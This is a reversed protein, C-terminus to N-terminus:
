RTGFKNMENILMNPVQKIASNLQELTVNDLNGEVTVSIPAEIGSVGTKVVDHSNGITYNVAKNLPVLNDTLAKFQVMQESSLIGEKRKVLAIGDEGTVRQLDFTGGEKFSAQKVLKKLTNLAYGVRDVGYLKTDYKGYKTLPALVNLLATYGNVNLGHGMSNLYKQLSDANLSGAFEPTNFISKVNRILENNTTNRKTSVEKTSTTVSTSNSSNGSWKAGALEVQQKALKEYWDYQDKLKDNVDSIADKIGSMANTVSNEYSLLPTTNNWVTLLDQQIAYGVATAKEQVTSLINVSKSICLDVADGFVRDTDKLYEEIRQRYLDLSKDLAEEQTEISHSYQDEELQEKADTLEQELKLKKAVDARDTSLSLAAIQKELMVINDKQKTISKEYDHTKKEWDLLEKQKDVLKQLADIKANYGKEVLSIVAEKESKAAEICDQYRSVLDDKREILTQNNPDRALEANIKEVEEKYLKAEETYFNYNQAKLGMSAIGEDTLGFDGTLEAEMFLDSLFSTEEEIAKLRSILDDFKDWNLQRIANNWEVTNKTCEEIQDSIGYLEALDEFYEVDDTTYYGDAINQNIREQVAKREKELQLQKDVNLGIMTKYMETGAAYGRAEITAIKSNVNSQKADTVTNYKEFQEKVKNIATEALSKLNTVLDEVAIAADKEAAINSNLAGNYKGAAKIAEESTLRTVDIEESLKVQTKIYSKEADTAKLAGSTIEEKAENFTKSTEKYAKQYESEQNRYSSAMDSILSGAKELSNTNGIRKEAISLADNLKEVSKTCDDIPLNGLSEGLSLMNQRYEELGDEYQTKSMEYAKRNGIVESAGKLINKGADSAASIGYKALWEEVDGLETQDSSLLTALKSRDTANKINSTVYKSQKFDSLNKKFESNTESKTNKYTKFKDREKNIQKNILSNKNASTTAMEIESSLHNIVSSLKEVKYTCEDLPINSYAMAIENLSDLYDSSGQLMNDNAEKSAQLANNWRSAIKVAEETNLKSLDIANNSNIAKTILKKEAKTTGKFANKKKISSKISNKNTTATDNATIYANLTKTANTREKELLTRKNAGKGTRELEASLLNFKKSLEEVKSNCKDLPINYLAENLSNIGSIYDQFGQNYQTKANKNANLSANYKQAWQLAKGKLKGTSIEEEKNIKGKLLNRYKKTLYSAKGIQTKAKKKSTNLKTKTKTVENEQTQIISDRANIQSQILSKNSKYNGSLTNYQEINSLKAELISLKNNYKDIKKEAAEVPINAWQEALDAMTNRLSENAEVCSQAKDYWSQYNQIAKKLNENKITKIDFTGGQISKIIRSSIKQTKKKKKSGTTYSKSKNAQTMYKDYAINNAKYEVSVKNYATKIQTQKGKQSIYEAIKDITREAVTKLKNLRREIFDFTEPTPKSKSGSSGKKKNPNNGVPLKLPANGSTKVSTGKVVTAQMSKPSDADLFNPIGDGDIDKKTPKYKSNTKKNKSNGKDDVSLASQYNQLVNFSFTTNNFTNFLDNLNNYAEVSSNSLSNLGTTGTNAGDSIGVKLYQNNFGFLPNLKNFAKNSGNALNNLGTVGATDNNNIGIQLYQNNYGFLPNLKNIVNDSSDSLINLNEVASETDINVKQDKEISKVDKTKNSDSMKNTSEKKDENVKKTKVEFDSVIEGFKDVYKGFEKDDKESINISGVNGNAHAFGRISSTSKAKGRSNTKGKSLLEETQKHNFVIDDKEINAFEAGDAGVTRWTGTKPNVILEEGLEATLAVHSGNVSGFTGSAHATGSTWAGVGGSTSGKNSGSNSGGSDSSLGAIYGAANATREWANAVSESNNAINAVTSDAGTLKGNTLDLKANVEDVEQSTTKDTGEDSQEILKDTNIGETELKQKVAEYTQRLEKLNEVDDKTDYGVEKKKSIAAELDDMKQKVDVLETGMSELSNTDEEVNSFDLEVGYAKLKDFLAEAVTETIGLQKRMDELNHIDFTFTGNKNINAMASGDDANKLKAVDKIFNNVGVSSGTLYRKVDKLESKFNDLNFDKGFYAEIQTKWEETGFLGGKYLEKLRTIGEVMTDYEFGVDQSNSAANQWATFASTTHVLQDRLLKYENVQTKIKENEEQLTSLEKKGADTLNDKQDKLQKIKEANIQYQQSRMAEAVRIEAIRHEANAKIMERAKQANLTIGYSTTELCKEYDQSSEILANYTEQTIYGTRNQESLASQLTNVDTTTQEVTKKFGDLDSITNAVDILNDLKASKALILAKKLDELTLTTKDSENKIMDLQQKYNESNVIDLDSKKLSVAWKQSKTMEPSFTEIYNAIISKSKNLTEELVETDIGNKKLFTQPDINLGNETLGNSIEEGYQNIIDIYDSVPMSEADIKFFNSISGQLEKNESVKSIIKNIYDEYESSDGEFKNYLEERISKVYSTLAIKTDEDINENKNFGKQLWADIYQDNEKIGNQYAKELVKEYKKITANAKSKIKEDDSIYDDAEINFDLGRREADEKIKRFDVAYTNPNYADITLKGSNSPKYTSTIAGSIYSYLLDQYHKVSGENDGIIDDIGNNPRSVSNYTNQMGSEVNELVKDYHENTSDELAKNLLDVNDRCKLIADGTSTYGNVLTPFREAIENSIENYEKFDSTSLSINQGFENVGKSLKEYREINDEVYSSNDELTKQSEKLEDNKAKVEDSLKARSEIGKTIQSIGLEILKIAATIAIMNGVTSLLTSGFGKLKSGVGEVGDGAKKAAAEERLTQVNSVFRNNKVGAKINDKVGQAKNKVGQFIGGSKAANNTQTSATNQDLAASNQELNVSDAAEAEGHVINAEQGAVKQENNVVQGETNGNVATTNATTEEADVVESDGHAINAAEGEEKAITNQEISGTEEDIAEKNSRFLDTVNLGGKAMFFGIIGGLATELLGVNGIVDSIAKAIDVFFILLGSDVSNQWMTQMSNTLKNMHSEISTLSTEMAEEASGDANLSENYASELMEPNQLIAAAISSRNKGAITELIAAQNIDTIDKWVKSIELLIEYTSKYAGTDTLISVGEPNDKTKTLKKITAYLKSANEAVGETDEGAEELESASTGRLRM